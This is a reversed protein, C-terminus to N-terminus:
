DGKLDRHEKKIIKVASYKGCKRCRVYLKTLISFCDLNNGFIEFVHSCKNCQYNHEETFKINWLGLILVVIGIIIAIPLIIIINM